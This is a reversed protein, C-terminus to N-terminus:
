KWDQWNENLISMNPFRIPNGQEVLRQQLRELAPSQHPLNEVLQYPAIGTELAFAAAGGAAAGGSWEIAQVRYAAAAIHSMAMSKGTVLLNNIQQPIMARLPIQFPYATSAGQREGPREQNGAQEPPSTQMCPHFDISYHGIGVSDPYLHARPQWRLQELAIQGRLFPITQLGAKATALDRYGAPGLTKPYYPDKYNQRSFDIESISFGDPYGYASRGVIRRSERLYPYKSLGHLTGMPSDAGQLLQLQPWPQKSGLKADTTGSHFWYFYGLAAAEAAQLSSIRLGGQWGGPELQGTAALQEPTYILNDEATGPGYDNGGVWNQMSIDGPLVTTYATKPDIPRRQQSQIRRYTFVLAPKEGYRPAGFTYSGAYQAYLPPPTAPQATATAQMAFPYTYAQPCYPYAADGSASPEFRSRADVGIRHPVGALAVLEGTETAEIVYWQGTRPGSVPPQFKLITKNFQASNAERYSDALTASLPLSNLPPAAPAPRHQIGRVSQIQTGDIQLAKVATNPFYHLKGRSATQLMSLLIEHGWRPLFCVQSVWCHGPPQSASRRGIRERLERYGAPFYQRNRQAATEDLASTGQASIQGGLWDTIETLCVQRDAKLAEYAAAVGAMGGGVVLVDCTVTQDVARTETTAGRAASPASLLLLGMGLYIGIHHRNL